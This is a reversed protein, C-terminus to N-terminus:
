VRPPVPLRACGLACRPAARVMRVFGWPNRYSEALMFNSSFDYTISTASVDVTRPQTPDCMVASAREEGEATRMAWLNDVVPSHFKGAVNNCWREGCLASALGWKRGLRPVSRCSAAMM